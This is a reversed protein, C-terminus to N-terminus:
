HDPRMDSAKQPQIPFVRFLLHLYLHSLGATPRKTLPSKTGCHPAKTLPSKTGCHPAKNLPSKTGCHPAQLPSPSPPTFQQVNLCRIRLHPVAGSVRERDYRQKEERKGHTEPNGGGPPPPSGEWMRKHNGKIKCTKLPILFAPLLEGECSCIYM